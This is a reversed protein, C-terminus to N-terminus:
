TRHKFNPNKAGYRSISAHRQEKNGIGKQWKKYIGMKKLFRTVIYMSIAHGGTTIIESILKPGHTQYLEIIKLQINQPISVFEHGKMKEKTKEAGRQRAEPSIPNTKHWETISKAIKNKWYIERGLMKNRILERHEESEWMRKSNDSLLKRGEESNNFKKAAETLIKKRREKQSIDLYSYTDGGDGGNTLNYGIKPDNSKLQEIWFIEKEALEDLTQCRDIVEKIFNEKGYKAIARRLIIGSGLYTQRNRADKGVYIKGNIKNTTKYIIMDICIYQCSRFVM